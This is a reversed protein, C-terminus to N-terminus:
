FYFVDLKLKRLLLSVNTTSGSLIVEVASSGQHYWKSRKVQKKGGTLLCVMKICVLM